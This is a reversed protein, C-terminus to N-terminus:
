SLGGRRVLNLRRNCITREGRLRTLAIEDLPNGDAIRPFMTIWLNNIMKAREILVHLNHDVTVNSPYDVAFIHRRTTDANFPVVANSPCARRYVQGKHIDFAVAGFYISRNNPHLETLHFTGCVERGDVDMKFHVRKSARSDLKDFIISNLAKDTLFNDMCAKAFAYDNDKVTSVFRDAGALAHKVGDICYCANHYLVDFLKVYTSIVDGRENFLKKYEDVSSLYGLAGM